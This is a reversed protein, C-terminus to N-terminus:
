IYASFTLLRTISRVWTIRVWAISVQPESSPVGYFFQSAYNDKGFDAIRAAADVAIFHTGNFDGPFYEGISGGLPAGPDLM